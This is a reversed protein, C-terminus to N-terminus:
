PINVLKKKIVRATKPISPSKTAAKGEYKTEFKKTQSFLIAMNRTKIDM